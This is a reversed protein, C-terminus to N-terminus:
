SGSHKDGKIETKIEAKLPLQIIAKIQGKSLRIHSAQTYENPEKHNRLLTFPKLLFITMM